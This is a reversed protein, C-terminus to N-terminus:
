FKGHILKTKTISKHTFKVFFTFSWKKLETVGPGLKQEICGM